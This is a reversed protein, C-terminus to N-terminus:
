AARQRGISRIARGLRRVEEAPADAGGFRATEYLAVVREALDLDPAGRERLAAVFERATASPPRAHGLRAYAALLDRYLDAAPTRRAKEAARPAAPTRRRYWYFAGIGAFVAGFVLFGPV